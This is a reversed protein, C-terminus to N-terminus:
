YNSIMKKVLVECTELNELNTSRIVLTAGYKGDRSFPYSGIEVDINNNQVKTLPTAFHGAKHSAVPTKNGSFIADKFEPESLGEFSDILHYNEGTWSKDRMHAIKNTFLASFGQLVGCEAKSGPVSLAYDFYQGLILARQARRFTKWSPASTGVSSMCENYLSLFELDGIKINSFMTKLHFDIPAGSQVRNLFQINEFPNNKM